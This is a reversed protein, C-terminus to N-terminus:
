SNRRHTDSPGSDSPHSRAYGTAAPLVVHRVCQDPAAPASKQLEIEPQTAKQLGVASCKLRALPGRKFPQEAQRIHINDVPQLAAHRRAVGIEFRENLAQLM